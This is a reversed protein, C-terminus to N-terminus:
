IKLYQKLKKIDTINKKSLKKKFNGYGDSVGLIERPKESNNVIISNTKGIYGGSIVKIKNFTNFKKTKSFYNLFNQRIYGILTETIDCRLIKIKKKRAYLIAQRNLNGKGLDIIIGNPKITKLYDVKIVSKQNACTIIGDSGYCASIPSNTFNAEALTSIPKILNIANSLQICKEVSRRFLSVNVGSEVLKLALKFGINGAGFITLKKKSLVKFHDRIIHWAHEVTIDNPKFELIPTKRIRSKLVTSLNGLEVFENSFSNKKIIYNKKYKDGINFPIKKETDVFIVDITEDFFKTIHNLQKTSYVVIGFILIDEIHRLPACHIKKNDTSTNTTISVCLYKFKSKLLIKKAKLFKKGIKKYESVM